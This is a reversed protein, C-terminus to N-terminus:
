RHQNTTYHERPLKKCATRWCPEGAICNSQVFFSRYKKQHPHYRRGLIGYSNQAQNYTMEGNEVQSVVALKFGLNYDRQSRKLGSKEARKM